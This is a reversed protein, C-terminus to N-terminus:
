SAAPVPDYHAKFRARDEASLGDGRWDLIGLEADIDWRRQESLQSFNTPRRFSAEFMQREDMSAKLLQPGPEHLVRGASAPIAVSIDPWLSLGGTPGKPTRYIRQVGKVKNSVGLKVSPREIM